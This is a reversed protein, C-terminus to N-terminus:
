VLIVAYDSEGEVVLFGLRPSGYKVCYQFCAKVDPRYPRIVAFRAGTHISFYFHGM